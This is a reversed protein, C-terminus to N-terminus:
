IGPGASWPAEEPTFIPYRMYRWRYGPNINGRKPTSCSILLYRLWESLDPAASSALTSGHLDRFKAGRNKLFVHFHSSSEFPWNFGPLGFENKLVNRDNRNPKSCNRTPRKGLIEQLHWGLHVVLESCGAFFLSPSTHSEVHSCNLQCQIYVMYIYIYAYVYLPVYVYVYVYVYMCVWVHIDIDLM